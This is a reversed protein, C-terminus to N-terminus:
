KRAPKNSGKKKLVIKQLFLYILFLGPLIPCEFIYFLFTLNFLLFFTFLVTWSISDRRSWSFRISISMNKKKKRKYKQYNIKQENKEMKQLQFCFILLINKNQDNLKQFEFFLFRIKKEIKRGTWSLCSGDM